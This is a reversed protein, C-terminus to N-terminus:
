GKGYHGWKGNGWGSWSAASDGGYVRVSPSIGYTGYGSGALASRGYTGYVSGTSSVATKGLLSSGLGGLHGIGRISTYSSGIVGTPPSKGYSGSLSFTLPINIGLAPQPASYRPWFMRGTVVAEPKEDASEASIHFAKNSFKHTTFM